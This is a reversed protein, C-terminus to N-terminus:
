DWDQGWLGSDWILNGCGVDANEVNSSGMTGGTSALVCTQGTPQAKVSLTYATTPPVSSTFEYLGNLAIPKNENISGAQLNLVLGSGTLGSVTGGIKCCPDFGDEFIRDGALTTTAVCLCTVGALLSVNPIRMIASRKDPRM